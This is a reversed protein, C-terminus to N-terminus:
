RVNKIIRMKYDDIKREKTEPSYYFEILAQCRPCIAHFNNITHFEVTDFIGEGEKTQFQTIMADCEPCNMEFNVNNYIGM